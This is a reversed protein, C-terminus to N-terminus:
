KGKGKGKGKKKTSRAKVCATGRGANQEFLIRPGRRGDSQLVEVLLETSVQMTNALHQADTWADPEWGPLTLCRVRGGGCSIDSRGWRLLQTGVKSIVQSNPEESAAGGREQELM